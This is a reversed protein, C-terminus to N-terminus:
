QHSIRHCVRCLPIVDLWHKKAYGKHHHYQEAQEDCNRCQLTSVKPLKDAQVAHMVAQQAKAKMPYLRQQKTKGRRRADKGKATQFYKKSTKAQVKKGHETRQYADIYEKCCPKCVSRHGDKHSRDKSFESFPLVQKCKSCRKTQITAPM